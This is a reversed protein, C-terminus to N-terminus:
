GFGAGDALGKLLLLSGELEAVVERVVLRCEEVTQEVDSALPTDSPSSRDLAGKVVAPGALTKTDAQHHPDHADLVRCFLDRVLGLTRNCGELAISLTQDDVDGVIGENITSLQAQVSEIIEFAADEMQKPGLKEASLLAGLDAMGRSM